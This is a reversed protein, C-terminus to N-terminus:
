DAAGSVKPLSILCAQTSVGAHAYVAQALKIAGADESVFFHCRAAEEIHCCDRFQTLFHKKRKELKGSKVKRNRGVGQSFLLICLGALTGAEQYAGEPWNSKPFMDSVIHQSKKDMYSLVHEVLDANPTGDLESYRQNWEADTELQAQKAEYRLRNLDISQLNDSLQQLISQTDLLGLPERKLADVWLDIENQMDNKLDSADLAGLWGFAYQSLLLNDNLFQISKAAFDDEGRLLGEAANPRLLLQQNFTVEPVIYLGGIANLVQIFQESQHFARCEEIHIRSYVLHGGKSKLSDLMTMIADRHPEGERLHSLINQDLYVSFRQSEEM